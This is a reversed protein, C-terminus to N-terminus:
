YEVPAETSPSGMTLTSGPVIGSREPFLSAQLCSPECHAMTPWRWPGHLRIALWPLFCHSSCEKLLCQQEVTGGISQSSGSGLRQFDATLPCSTDLILLSALWISFHQVESRDPFSSHQVAKTNFDFLQKLEVLVPTHCTYSKSTLLCPWCLCSAEDLVFSLSQFFSALCCCETSPPFTDGDIRDSCWLLMYALANQDQSLVVEGYSFSIAQLLAETKLEWVQYLLLIM